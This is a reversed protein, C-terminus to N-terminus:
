RDCSESGASRLASCVVHEMILHVDEVQEIRDAPVRLTVDAISGLRGGDTVLINL